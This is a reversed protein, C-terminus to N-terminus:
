VKSYGQNGMAFQGTEMQRKYEKLEAAERREEALLAAHELRGARRQKVCCVAMLCMGVALLGLSGAIIGIKAGEPLSKWHNRVGSPSQIEKLVPSPDSAGGSVVKIKQWDGSADMNAWSYVKGETYDKAYVSKVAMTFPGKSFDTAGGAWQVVGPANNRTDGGAWMGIRLNMPTQPYNRGGLADGFALERIMQGDLWWQTRDKTWDLTYNHFDNQPAAMPFEAGRNGYTTNGKGYYNTFVHTTNSGLFEWDLEDLDDSQLIASSVIGTGTAAKLIVEVRGFFLYFLSQIQPSDGSREITFTAGEKADWGQTGQNMHAWIKGGTPIGKQTFDFTANSGLAAMDPCGTTNLPNCSTHTQAFATSACAAVAALTFSKMM